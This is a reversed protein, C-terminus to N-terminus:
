ERYWSYPFLMKNPRVQAAEATTPEPAARAVVETLVAAQVFPPTVDMFPMKADMYPMNADMPLQSTEVLPPSAGMFLLVGYLGTSSGYIAACCGYVAACRLRPEGYSRQHQPRTAAYRVDTGPM